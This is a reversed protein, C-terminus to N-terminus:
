LKEVEVASLGTIEAIEALPTGDKKLKLAFKRKLEAERLEAEETKRNAAETEQKAAEIKLNAAEIKLNAEETERKSKALERDKEGCTGEVAEQYYQEKELEMRREPDAAVHELINVMGKVDPDDVEFLYDKMTTGDGIFHAQEFISLLRDLKTNLGPKIRTTQIFYASHTLENVFLDRVRIEENTILDRYRPVNGFAPSDVSLPFGLIYIAVIPLKSVSYENGLYKRFRFVDNLLKAKQMEILVRKEGEEKTVITAAFDMRFLSMTPASKVPETREITTPVLSLVECGMITGILFKAARDNELLRKFTVDYIPNAIIM